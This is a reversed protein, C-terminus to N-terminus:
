YSRNALMIELNILGTRFDAVNMEIGAQIIALLYTEWSAVLLAEHLTNDFRWDNLKVVQLENYVGVEVAKTIYETNTVTDTIAGGVTHAAVYEISWDGDPISGHQVIGSILLEAPLIQFVLGAQLGGNFYSSVNIIDYQVGLISINLVAYGNNFVDQIAGVEWDPTTDTITIGSSDNAALVTFLLNM